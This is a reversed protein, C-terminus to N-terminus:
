KIKINVLQEVRRIDALLKSRDPNYLTLDFVGKGGNKSYYARKGVRLNIDIEHFSDVTQVKKIGSIKTITGEKDPYFRLVASFGQCKKPIIPKKPIRILVDNLYHDIDCSLKHLIERFGGVRPGIEIIKWEGDVRLLETHTTVSRLGLAHIGIEAREQAKLVSEPKLGTPTIRIYNYFDDHGVNKGTTVKVVPCHYVQGRSNVYSDISYMDGEMYEEAIIRPTEIRNNKEYLHSIKRFAKKLTVDLEEKHYCVTVLVSTALNTPKIVMPFKVKEIVRKQEAVTANKVLTFRPTHKPDYLKFRKRMEYKDSAWRLSDTSPTRLYPVHPIVNIFKAINAESYCTIAVLEAQYPLLAQAISRPKNFDCYVIIDAGPIDVDKGKKEDCIVLTRYKQGTKKSYEELSVVLATPLKNVFGLLNKDNKQRM